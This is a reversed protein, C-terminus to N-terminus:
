SFFVFLPETSLTTTIRNDTVTIAAFNSFIGILDSTDIESCIYVVPLVHLDTRGKEVQEKYRTLPTEQAPRPYFPTSEVPQPHGQAIHYTGLHFFESSTLPV